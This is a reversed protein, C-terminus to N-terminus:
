LTKGADSVEEEKLRNVWRAKKFCMTEIVEASMCDIDLAACVLLIDALEESLNKWCEAESRNPLNIGNEHRYCKGAAQGLEAAEEALQALLDSTSLRGKIYEIDTM